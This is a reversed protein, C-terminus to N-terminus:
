TLPHSHVEFHDVRARTACAAELMDCSRQEIDGGAGALLLRPTSFGEAGDNRVLCTAVSFGEACDGGQWDLPCAVEVQREM